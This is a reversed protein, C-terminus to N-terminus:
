GPACRKRTKVSSKRPPVTCACSRVTAAVSCHPVLLWRGCHLNALTISGPAPVRQPRVLVSHGVHRWHGCLRRRHSVFRHTDLERCGAWIQLWLRSWRYASQVQDVHREGTRKHVSGASQTLTIWLTHCARHKASHLSRTSARVSLLVSVSSCGALLVHSGLVSPRRSGVSEQDAQPVIHAPLQM